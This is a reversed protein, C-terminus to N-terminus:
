HLTVESGYPVDDFRNDSSWIGHPLSDVRVFTLQAGEVSNQLALYSDRAALPASANIVPTTVIKVPVADSAQLVASVAALLLFMKTMMALLSQFSQQIISTKGM